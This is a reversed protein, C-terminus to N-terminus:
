AFMEELAQVTKSVDSKYFGSSNICNVEIVRLGEPTDAVDMCFASDPVWLSSIYEVFNVVMEPINANQYFRGGLRYQSGTIFKKNIVFLRYEAYIEKPASAMVPTRPTLSTYGDSYVESTDKKWQELEAHTMLTGAFLKSDEPPRIFFPEWPPDITDLPAVIAEYNLMWDKWHQVQVRFDFNENIFASPFWNRSKGIQVLTTAGIVMVPNPLNVDPEITHIFPRVKVITYESGNKDLAQLLLSHGEENWLNEQIIWHM